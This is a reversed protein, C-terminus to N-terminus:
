SEAKLAAQVAPRNQVREILGLINKYGSLDVKTREAWGLTVFLYIDAVSYGSEMLFPHKSLNDDVFKLKKHMQAMAFERHEPATLPSFLPSYGKHMESTVFNVWEMLRYREWTGAKPILGAEPKQDALYQIIAGTETLVEGNALKLAPVHGKPNIVSVYDGEAVKKNKPDVRETEFKLGTEHLVIHPARSCSGPVYFLKM